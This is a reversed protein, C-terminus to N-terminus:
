VQASLFGAHDEAVAQDRQQILRKGADIRKKVGLGPTGVAM